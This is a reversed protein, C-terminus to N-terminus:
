ESEVDHMWFAPREDANATAIEVDASNWTALTGCIFFGRAPLTGFMTAEPYASEKEPPTLTAWEKTGGGLQHLYVDSVKINQIM